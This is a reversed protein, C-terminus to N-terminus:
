MRVTDSYLISARENRLVERKFSHLTIRASATIISNIISNTSRSPPSNDVRKSVTVELMSDHILRVDEVNLNSDAYLAALDEENNVFYSQNKLERQGFKGITLNLTLKYFQKLSSNPSVNKPTLKLLENEGFGMEYNIRDLAQQMTESPSPKIGSFRIKYSSLLNIFDKFIAKQSTYAYVEFLEIKM